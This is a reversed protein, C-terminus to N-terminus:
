WPRKGIRSAIPNTLLDGSYPDVLFTTGDLNSVLLDEENVKKIDIYPHTIGTYHTGNFEINDMKKIQWIIKLEGSVGYVNELLQSNLERELLVILISSFIEVKKIPNSFEISREAISITNGKFNVEM